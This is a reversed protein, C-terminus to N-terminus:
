FLPKMAAQPTLRLLPNQTQAFKGECKLKGNKRMVRLAENLHKGLWLEERIEGTLTQWRKPEASLREVVWDHLPRFDPEPQLLIMQRPSDSKSAYFGGNPCAKWMCEKMLDRGEPHNTLHLLFYRVRGNDLMRLYTGWKAKTMQRFLDACQEARRDAGEANITRWRNGDFISNLLAELSARGCERKRAAALEEEPAPGVEFLTPGADAAQPARDDRCQQIAMDLERWIVNVFLEVKPYSLLKQLLKGPLRFGYPDVFIFAPAMRKGDKEMESIANEIIQFCDGSEVEAFVNHTLPRGALETKLTAVNEEDEEIFYFRVEADRLMRDRHAHDLLTTLAVLPSGPQGNLHKGRGAHTDIYLLRRCGSPGLTMKPFWGKLYERILAHKVFQLNSYEAWYKPNPDATNMKKV